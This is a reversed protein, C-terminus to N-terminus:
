CRGGVGSHAEWHGGGGYAHEVPQSFDHRALNGSIGVSAIRVGSRECECKQCLRASEAGRERERERRERREREGRERERKKERERERERGRKRRDGDTERRDEDREERKTERQDERM